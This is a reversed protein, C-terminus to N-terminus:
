HRVDQTCGAILLPAPPSLVHSLILINTSKHSHAYEHADVHTCIYCFVGAHLLCKIGAELINTNAHICM